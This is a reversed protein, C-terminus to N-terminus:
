IMGPEPTEQVDKITCLQVVEIAKLKEKFFSVTKLTWLLVDNFLYVENEDLRVSPDAPPWEGWKFLRGERVLQRHPSVL